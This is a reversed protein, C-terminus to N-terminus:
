ASAESEEGKVALNELRKLAGAYRENLDDPNASEFLFKNIAQANDLFIKEPVAKALEKMKTEVLENMGRSEQQGYKYVDWAVGLYSMGKKMADTVCGKYATEIGIYDKTDKSMLIDCTGPAAVSLIPEGNFKVVLQYLCLYFPLNNGKGDTPMHPAQVCIFDFEPSINRRMADMMYGIKVYDLVIPKGTKKDKPGERSSVAYGPTPTAQTKDIAGNIMAHFGVIHATAELQAVLASQESTTVATEKQDEGM